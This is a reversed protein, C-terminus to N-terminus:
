RVPQVSPQSKKANRYSHIHQQDKCVGPMMKHTGSHAHICYRAHAPNLHMRGHQIHRKNRIVLQKAYVSNKQKRNGQQVRGFM